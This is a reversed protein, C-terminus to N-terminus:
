WQICTHQMAFERAAGIHGVGGKKLFTAEHGSQCPILIINQMICKGGVQENIQLPILQSLSTALLSYHASRSPPPPPTQPQDVPCPDRQLEPSAREVYQFFM